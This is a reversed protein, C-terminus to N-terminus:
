KEREGADVCTVKLEIYKYATSKKKKGAKSSLQSESVINVMRLLYIGERHWYFSTVIKSSNKFSIKTKSLSQKLGTLVFLCVFFGVHLMQLSFADLHSINYWDKWFFFTHIYKSSKLCLRCNQM